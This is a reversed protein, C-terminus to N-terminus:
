SIEYVATSRRRQLGDAATHMRTHTGSLSVLFSAHPLGLSLTQTLSLSLTSSNLPPTTPLHMYLRVSTNAIRTDGSMECVGAVWQACMSLGSSHRRTITHQAHEISCVRQKPTHARIYIYIYMYVFIYIHLHVYIYIYTYICICIFIYIHTYMYMYISHTVFPKGVENKSQFVVAHLDWLRKGWSYGREWNRGEREHTGGGPEDREGTWRVDRIMEGRTWGTALRHVPCPSAVNHLHTHTHKFYLHMYVLVYTNMYMHVHVCNCKCLYACLWIYYLRQICPLSALVCSDSVFILDLSKLTRLGHMHTQSLSGSPSLFFISRRTPALSFFQEGVSAGEATVEPGDGRETRWKKRDTVEGLGGGRGSEPGSLDRFCICSRSREQVLSRVIEPILPSMNWLANESLCVFVVRVFVCKRVGDRCARGVVPTSISSSRSSQASGLRQSGRSGIKESERELARNILQTHTPTNVVCVLSVIRPVCTVWIVQVHWQASGPEPTVMDEMSHFECWCWSCFIGLWCYLSSFLFFM